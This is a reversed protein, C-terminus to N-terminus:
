LTLLGPSKSSILVRRWLWFVGGQPRKNWFLFFDWRSDGESWTLVQSGLVLNTNSGWWPAMAIDKKKMARKRQLTLKMGPLPALHFPFSNIVSCTCWLCCHLRGAGQRGCVWVAGLGVQFSRSRAPSSPGMEISISGPLIQKLVVDSYLGRLFNVNGYKSPSKQKNCILNLFCETYKSLSFLCAVFSCALLCLVLLRRDANIICWSRHQACLTPTFSYMHSSSIIDMECILSKLHLMAFYGVWGFIVVEPSLALPTTSPMKYEKM